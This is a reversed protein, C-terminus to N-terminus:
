VRHHPEASSHSKAQLEKNDLNTAIVKGQNNRTTYVYPNNIDSWTNVFYKCDGSFIAENWGEQNTLRVTKGNKRTVMIQRDHPNLPAAQYYVDGTKEDYGYVKTIDYKGDGIKRLLKGNQSYLYLHMYGDRDSPM